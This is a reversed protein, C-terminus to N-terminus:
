AEPAAQRSLEAAAQTGFAEDLKADWLRVGGLIGADNNVVQVGASLDFDILKANGGGILLADYDTLVHMQEVVRRM